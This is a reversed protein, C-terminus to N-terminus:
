LSQDALKSTDDEMCKYTHHRDILLVFLPLTFPFVSWEGQFHSYRAHCFLGSGTTHTSLARYNTTCHILMELVLPHSSLRSLGETWNFSLWNARNAIKLTPNCLQYRVGIRKSLRVLTMKWIPNLRRSCNITLQIMFYISM